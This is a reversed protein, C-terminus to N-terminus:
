AVSNPQGALQQQADRGPAAVVLQAQYFGDNGTSVKLIIAKEVM